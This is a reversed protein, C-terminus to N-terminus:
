KILKFSEYFHKFWNNRVGSNSINYWTNKTKLVLTEHYENPKEKHTWLYYIGNLGNILIPKEIVDYGEYLGNNNFLMDIRESNSVKSWTITFESNEFGSKLGCMFGGKGGKSIWSKPYEVTYGIKRDKFLSWTTTKTKFYSSKKSKIKEIDFLEDNVNEESISTLTMKITIFNNVIKIIELPYSNTSKVVTNFYEYNHKEFLKPDLKATKSNFFYYEKGINDWSLKVLKCNIGNVSKLSDIKEAKPKKFDINLANYKNADTISEYESDKQFSYIKNVSSKYIILNETKSNDKKIYNGGKLTVTLTDFYEGDNKMKEIVQEKTIKFDGFKQDKIEFDVSYTLKGEFSQGFMLSYTLTAFIAYLIKKM